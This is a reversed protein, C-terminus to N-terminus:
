AMSRAIHAHSLIGLAEKIVYVGIAAGVALDFYRSGTATVALGAVIVAANAMVDVRTFIWAARMHVETSRQNNMLRLVYVNVALAALSVAIMWEGEPESGWLIRRLLDIVIGLGVLLLLAGSTTAARSKFMASRGIAALAIGYASADTLMDFADAILGTSKAFKGAAGEIVFMAANLFLAIWLM